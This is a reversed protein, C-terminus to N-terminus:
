LYENNKSSVLTGPNGSLSILNNWINILRGKKADNYDSSYLINVQDVILRIRVSKMDYNAVFSKFFEFLDNNKIKEM